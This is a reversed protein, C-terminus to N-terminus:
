IPAVVPFWILVKQSENDQYEHSVEEINYANQSNPKKYKKTIKM